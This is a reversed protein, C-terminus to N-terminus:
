TMDYGLSRFIDNASDTSIIEGDNLSNRLEEQAKLTEEAEKEFEEREKLQKEIFNDDDKEKFESSMGQSKLANYEEDSIQYMRGSNGNLKLKFNKNEEGRRNKPIYLFRAGLSNGKPRGLTIMLDIIQQKRSSEAAAELPILEHNWYAPKPQSAIFVVSRNIEALNKAKDYIDGNSEYMNDITSRLNRDYDIVIVDYHVNRLKQFSFIEERLQDITLEGVAYAYIDVNEFCNNCSFSTNKILEVLQQENLGVIEKSTCPQKELDELEKELIKLNKNVQIAEEADQQSVNGTMQKNKFENILKNMEEIQSKIKNIRDTKGEQISDLYSSYYRIFGDFKSMDGLFIHCVKLGQKASYLGQNILFTSKGSGPSASVLVLNGIPIGDYQMIDNMKEIFLRVVKLNGEDDGIAEKRIFPLTEFDALNFPENRTGIIAPGNRIDNIFKEIALLESNSNEAGSKTLIETMSEISEQTKKKYIFDLTIDEYAKKDSINESYITEAIRIYSDLKDRLEENTGSGLEEQLKQRMIDIDPISSYTNYYNRLIKFMVRFSNKEFYNLKVEPECKSFMQQDNIFTKIVIKEMEDLSNFKMQNSLDM